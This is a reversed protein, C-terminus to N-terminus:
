PGSPRWVTRAVGTIERKIIMGAVVDAIKEPM